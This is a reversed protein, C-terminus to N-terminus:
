CYEDTNPLNIYFPCIFIIIEVVKFKCLSLWNTSGLEVNEKFNLTLLM